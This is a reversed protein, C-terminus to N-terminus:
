WMVTESHSGDLDDETRLAHILATLEDIVLPRSLMENESLTLSPAKRMARGPRDMQTARCESAVLEIQEVAVACEDAARAARRSSRSESEEDIGDNSGVGVIWVGLARHGARIQPSHADVRRREHGALQQGIPVGSSGTIDRIWHDDAEAPPQVEFEEEGAPVHGPLVTDVGHNGLELTTPLSKGIPLIESQALIARLGFNAARPKLAFLVFLKEVADSRQVVRPDNEVDTSPGGTNTDLVIRLPIM